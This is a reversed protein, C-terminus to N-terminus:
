EKAKKQSWLCLNQTQRDRGPGQCGLQTVKQLGSIRLHGHEARVSSQHAHHCLAGKESQQASPTGARGRRLWTSRSWSGEEEDGAM